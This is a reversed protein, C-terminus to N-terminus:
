MPLRKMVVQQEPLTMDAALRKGVTFQFRIIRLSAIQQMCREVHLLQSAFSLLLKTHQVVVQTNSLFVQCLELYPEAPEPM